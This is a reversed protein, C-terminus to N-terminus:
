TTDNEHSTKLVCPGANGEFVPKGREGLPTTKQPSTVRFAYTTARGNLMQM